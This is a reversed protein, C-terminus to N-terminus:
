VHARGIELAPAWRAADATQASWQALHRLNDDLRAQTSTQEARAARPEVGAWRQVTLKVLRQSLARLQGARNVAEAWGAAETVARSLEGMRLNAHMAAGRLLAFAAPEDLGRASMLVGKARDM